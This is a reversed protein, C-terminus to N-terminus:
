NAPLTYVQDPDSPPVLAVSAISAIGDGRGTTVILDGGGSDPYFYPHRIRFAGSMPYESFRTKGSWFSREGVYLVGKGHGSVRLELRRPRAEPAVRVFLADWRGLLRLYGEDVRAGRMPYADTLTVDASNAVIRDPAVFSLRSGRPALPAMPHERIVAQGDRLGPVALVFAARKAYTPLPSHAVDWLEPHGPQAPRQYLREWRGDDAFAGLAQVAIGFVALAVGLGGTAAIGEPLFFLLLPLADTMLRPGFSEGGHWESWRGMLVLHALAALGLAVPLFREGRRLARVLGCVAVIM